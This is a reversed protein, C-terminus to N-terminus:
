AGSPASVPFRGSPREKECRRKADPAHLELRAVGHEDVTKEFGIAILVDVVGAGAGRIMSDLKVKTYDKADRCVARGVACRCERGFRRPGPWGNPMAPLM